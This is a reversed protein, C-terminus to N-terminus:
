AVLLEARSQGILGSQLDTAVKSYDKNFLSGIDGALMTMSKAIATTTEGTQGLSNTVSALQSAYQTIEQINLGLNKTADATLLGGEVDVQLGSMKGLLTSVRDSFSKAYDTANEYGYKEFDKGWESGIKNFAVTYYNFTEIYDTTGEISNWLSKMGRIAFFYTAYFKGFAAALSWASKSARTASTNVNNLSRQITRSASGVRAGQASLNALANTMQIVNGSVTPATSLTTLLNKLSDALQPMNTIATQVSKNGLKAINKAVEGLQVANGSVSGLQNFASSVNNLSSAVNNLNATNANNIQAINKALRTFDATGVSKMGQMAGTLQGVSTALGSLSSGNVSSLSASLQTLKTILSDISNNAKTANAQLKIELSDIEAM